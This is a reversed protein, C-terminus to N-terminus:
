YGLSTIPLFSLDNSGQKDSSQESRDLRKKSFNDPNLISIFGQRFYLNIQEWLRKFLLYFAILRGM